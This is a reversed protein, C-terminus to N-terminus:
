RLSREVAVFVGVLTNGRCWWWGILERNFSKAGRRVFLRAVSGISQGVSWGVSRAFETRRMRNGAASSVVPRPVPRNLTPFQFKLFLLLFPQGDHRLIHRRRPPILSHLVLNTNKRSNQTKSPSPNAPLHTKPLLHHNHHQQSPNTPTISPPHPPTSAPTPNPAPLHSPIAISCRSSLAPPPNISPLRNSVPQIAFMAPWKGRTGTQRSRSAPWRRQADGVRVYVRVCALVGEM